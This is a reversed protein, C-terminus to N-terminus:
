KPAPTPWAVEYEAYGGTNMPIELKSVVDWACTSAERPFGPADITADVARQDSGVLLTVRVQDSTPGTPARFCALIEDRRSGLVEYAASESGADIRHAFLVDKRGAANWEMRMTGRVPVTGTVGENAARLQRVFCSAADELGTGVPVVEDIGFTHADRHFRIWVIGPPGEFCDEEVPATTQGTTAPAAAPTTVCALAPLVTVPIWSFRGQFRTM